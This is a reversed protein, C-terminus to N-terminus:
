LRQRYHAESATAVISIPCTIVHFLKSFPLYAFFIFVLVAHLIWGYFRIATWPLDWIKLVYSGFAGAFSFWMKPQPSVVALRCAELFFGTIIIGLLLLLIFIDEKNTIIHEEKQITRRYLALLLGLFICLGLFDAMFDLILKIQSLLFTEAPLLFRTIVILIFVLALALFGMSVLFFISWRMRSQRWIRIGLFAERLLGKGVSPWHVPNHISVAQGQNWISMSSFVGTAAVFMAVALLWWHLKWKSIAEWGIFDNGPYFQPLHCERCDKRTARVMEEGKRHKVPPTSQYVAINKAPVVIAEKKTESIAKPVVQNVTGAEAMDKLFFCSAATCIWLLIVFTRGPKNLM